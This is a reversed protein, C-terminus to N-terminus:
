FFSNNSTFTVPTRESLTKHRTFRPDTTGTRWRDAWVTGFTNAVESPDTITTNNHQLVPLPTPISRGSISNIRKWVETLPTLRNIASIYNCWSTRKAERVTRRALAKARRFSILNDNTPHRQFIRFLRRRERISQRCQETWWPVPIRRPLPTTKPIFKGASTNIHTCIEEYFTTATKRQDPIFDFICDATYGEWNAKRFNWRPTRMGPHPAESWVWIPYHDSGCPNDHTRWQFRHALSPSCLSLDIASTSGSPLSIHTPHGTNLICINNQMIIEELRRGRTNTRPCGWQTSYTNLDGLIIYNTPLERILDQFEAEPFAEGPPLYVSVITLKINTIDVTAAVAQLGTRLPFSVSPVSYHVLLAVGGHAIQTNILDHRYTKYHHINCNHEQKLKTEQLAVAVPSKAAVLAQLDTLNSRFGRM